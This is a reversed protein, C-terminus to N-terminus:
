YMDGQRPKGSAKWLYYDKSAARKLKKMEETWGMKKGRILIKDAEMLLVLIDDIDAEAKQKLGTNKRTIKRVHCLEKSNSAAEFILNKATAIEGAEFGAKVDNGLTEIPVCHMKNQLFCPVKCVVVAGSDSTNAM